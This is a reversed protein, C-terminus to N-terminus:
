IVFINKTDKYRQIWKSFCSDFFHKSGFVPSGLFEVGGKSSVVRQIEPHFETFEQNGSPWFVECTNANLCLGFDPGRTKLIDFISAVVQRPGM